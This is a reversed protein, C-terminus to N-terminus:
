KWTMDTAFMWIRHGNGCYHRTVGNGLKKAASHNSQDFKMVERTECFPCIPMLARGAHVEIVIDKSKEIAGRYRAYHPLLANRRGRSRMQANEYDEFGCHLCTMVAVIEADGTEQLHMTGNCRQCNM